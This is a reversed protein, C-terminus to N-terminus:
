GGDEKNKKEFQCLVKHRSGYFDIQWSFPFSWEMNEYLFNWIGQEFYSKCCAITM